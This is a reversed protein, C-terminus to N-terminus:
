LCTVKLQMDRLEKEVEVRKTQDSRVRALSRGFIEQFEGEKEKLSVNEQKLSNVASELDAIRQDKQRCSARMSAAQELADNTQQTLMQLSEAVALCDEFYGRMNEFVEPVHPLPPQYHQWIGRYIDGKILKILRQAPTQFVCLKELVSCAMVVRDKMSSQSPRALQAVAVEVSNVFSTFRVSEEDFMVVSDRSRILVDHSQGRQPLMIPMSQSLPDNPICRKSIPVGHYISSHLLAEADIHSAGSQPRLMPSRGSMSSQPRSFSSLPAVNHPANLPSALPFRSAEAPQHPSASVATPQHPSASAAALRSSASRARRNAPSDTSELENFNSVNFDASFSHTSNQIRLPSAFVSSSTSAHSTKPRLMSSALTTSSSQCNLTDATACFWIFLYAKLLVFRPLRTTGVIM